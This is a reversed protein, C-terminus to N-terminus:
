PLTVATYLCGYARMIAYAHSPVGHVDSYQRETHLQQVIPTSPADLLIRSASGSTHAPSAQLHRINTQAANHYRGWPIHLSFAIGQCGHHIFEVVAQTLLATHPEVQYAPFCIGRRAEM